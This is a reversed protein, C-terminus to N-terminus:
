PQGQPRGSLENKGDSDNRSDLYHIVLNAIEGILGVLALAVIKTNEDIQIVM